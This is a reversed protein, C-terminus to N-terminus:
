VTLTATFGALPKEPYFSHAVLHETAALTACFGFWNEYLAMVASPASYLRSKRGLRRYRQCFMRFRGSALLRWTRRRRQLCRRCLVEPCERLTLILLEGCSALMGIIPDSAYDPFGQDMLRLIDYHLVLNSIQTEPSDSMHMADRFHWFALDGMKLRNQLDPLLGRRLKKMLTTKGACSPGAVLIIRGIKHRRGGFKEVEPFASIKQEM